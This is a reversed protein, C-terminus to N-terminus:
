QAHEQLYFQYTKQIGDHLSTPPTWGWDNQRGVDLLKQQMGVPRSLDHVFRGNWGIIDAVIQYYDNITHDKGIGINVLDPLDAPNEAARMVADALDGAFMFERRAMGDGWIEVENLNDAKAQQVKHIIAPILHSKQPDFKDWLGYLNCPIMTKYNLSPDERKAFECLRMTLIKALAYGENTPELAGTLIKDESLGNGLAKPYMCSSALNILSRVGAARAASVINLGIEANEALFRFPAAMNAQIGGVVGAAHVIIDPKHLTLYADVAARNRLDLESSSPALIQWNGASPHAQINRGVMGRGGTILMIPRHDSEAM